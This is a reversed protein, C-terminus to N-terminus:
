QSGGKELGAPTGKLDIVRMLWNDLALGGQRTLRHFALISGCECMRSEIWRGSEIEHVSFGQTFTDFSEM